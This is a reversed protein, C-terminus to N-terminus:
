IIKEQKLMNLKEDSYGLIESLIEQNHQGITPSPKFTQEPNGSMKIPNGVLKVKGAEPHDISVVMNQELVQPDLFAKDLTNVPGCPIDAEILVKLWEEAPKTLFAEELLAHIEKWRESRKAGTDFNPDKALEPRGIAKCLNVWFKDTGATIVIYDDKTKFGRYAANAPTDGIIPASGSGLPGPQTGHMFYRAAIYMLMSIVTNLLSVEIKQGVGTRERAYLAAMIGQACFMGGGLDGIPTGTRCPPGGPNGTISMVGSLGQAILDYLPRARYPGTSGAGTLSCCIIRPNILKLTEYDIGLRQNIGPRFGDFVVDSKRVLEYFIEKGKPNTIDLTMGKKDRNLSIFHALGLVERSYRDGVEPPEIKIVEAGLQALLMSGFPGGVTTTLDLIRVGELAGAM